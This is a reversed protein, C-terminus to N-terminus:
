LFSVEDVPVFRPADIAPIGDKGPGGSSFEGLPVSHQAFDTSWGAAAFGLEDEAPVEPETSQAGDPSESDSSSGLFVVGLAVAVVIVAASGTLLLARRM